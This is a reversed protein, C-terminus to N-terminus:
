NEGVEITYTVDVPITDSAIYSSFLVDKVPVNLRKLQQKLYELTIINNDTEMLVHRKSVNLISNYVIVKNSM